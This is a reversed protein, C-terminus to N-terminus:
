VYRGQNRQDQLQTKVIGNLTEKDEETGEKDGWSRGPKSFGEGGTAAETSASGDPSTSSGQFSHTQKM